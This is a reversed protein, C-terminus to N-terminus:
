IHELSRSFLLLSETALFGAERCQYWVSDQLCNQTFSFIIAKNTQWAFPSVSPDHLNLLQTGDPLIQHTKYYHNLPPIASLSWPTHLAETGKIQGWPDGPSGKHNQSSGVTVERSHPLSWWPTVRKGNTPPKLEASSSSSITIHMCMWSGWLPGEPNWNRWSAWAFHARSMLHTNSGPQDTMTGNLSPFM